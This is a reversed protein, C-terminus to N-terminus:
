HNSQQFYNTEYLVVQGPKFLSAGLEKALARRDLTTGKKLNIVAVVESHEGHLEELKANRASKFVSIVDQGAPFDKRSAANAVIRESTAHDVIGEGLISDAIEKIVDAKRVIMAYIQELRDNAGCGSQTEESHYDDTHGGILLGTEELETMINRMGGTVSGDDSAFRKSTLDDAVFLTETGGAANPGETPKASIRGDICKCPITITTPVHFEGSALRETMEDLREQQKETAQITGEAESLMSYKIAITRM